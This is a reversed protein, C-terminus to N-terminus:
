RWEPKVWTKFMVDLLGPLSSVIDMATVVGLARDKEDVVVLRKIRREGMLQAADEVTGLLPVTVVPQTMVEAVSTRRADRGGVIVRSCVDRMTLMGAARKADEVVVGSIRNEVMSKVADFVSAGPAVMVLRKSMIEKVLMKNHIVGASLYAECGAM